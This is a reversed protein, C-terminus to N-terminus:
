ILSVIVGNELITEGPSSEESIIDLDNKGFESGGKSGSPDLDSCAASYGGLLILGGFIALGATAVKHKKASVLVERGM